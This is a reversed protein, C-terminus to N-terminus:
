FFDQFAPQAPTLLIVLLAFLYVSLVYKLTVITTAKFQYADPRLLYYESIPQVMALSVVTQTTAPKAIM